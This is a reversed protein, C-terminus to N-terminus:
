SERIGEAMLKERYKSLLHQLRKKAKSPSLGIVRSAKSMSIDSGYVLRVLLRDADSLGATMERVIQLAKLRRKGDLKEVLYELPNPAKDEANDTSNRSTDNPSVFSPNERCPATRIPGTEEQFEAFSGDYLGEILVIDYAETYSYRLWCVLRYVAEAWPGLRSVSKPIRKRGYRKRKFDSILAHTVTHLYTKLTSKGAYARLRKYDAEQLGELVHVYCEDADEGYPLRRKCAAEIRHLVGESALVSKPDVDINGTGQAM